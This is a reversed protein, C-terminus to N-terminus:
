HTFNMKQQEDQLAAGSAFYKAAKAGAAFPSRM